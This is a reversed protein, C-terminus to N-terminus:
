MGLVRWMAERDVRDYAKELDMYAVYLRKNKYVFKESMQKMVFVQDVCGRGSRFGCQEEGILRETLSRIKEILIRGYVKGPISSLSIGRYNRCESSDGKGKYIPVIIARMWNNPVKEELVCVNCVRRLWELLCEGGCKLMESTIGDVGPSKGGKLKKVAKRVDEVSIELEENALKNVVEFGSETLEARRGDDVNLLWEFYEKWRRKVDSADTVVNGDSNRVQMSMQDREKRKVNVDSWFLKKNDRFKRSLQIGDREDVENKKQRTM